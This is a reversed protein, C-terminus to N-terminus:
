VQEGQAGLIAGRIFEWEEDTCHQWLPKSAALALAELLTPASAILRANAERNTGTVGGGLVVPYWAVSAITEGAECYVEASYMGDRRERHSQSWPGPTFGKGSM